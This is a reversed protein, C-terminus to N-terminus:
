AIQQQSDLIPCRCQGSQSVIARGRYATSRSTQVGTRHAAEQWSQGAQMLEMM